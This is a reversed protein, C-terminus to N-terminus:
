ADALAEEFTATTKMGMGRAFGPAMAGVLYIASTHMEAVHGCSIMSFAHFPHYGFGFRYQDIYEKRTAFYEGYVELDTLSQHYDKQYLEYLDRYATFEEDHFYGNCLSSCIVVANDALIRKHRIINAAIAQLILIPNTGHGDGYHFAQPMGFMLVQYKRRAWAVYTRRDAVEWSAAQVREAAGAFVAIQRMRTDLVADCVFFPRKMRSEMHRGIADFKRRMTSHSSVPTFDAGHMVAPVHHSAISRWHTIGTACHKYGGSYGGYPNGLAHGILVPLDAEFVARNMIVPDGEPDSGLDVLNEPDESDHNVIRGIRSFRHYIDDGLIARLESPRMKRHLGNSCVLTINKEKVGAALCEDIILPISIKRHSTEQFGGKVRDPFVIAVTSHENVLRSVPEMGLPTRLAQETAARPDDLPPPDPVTEGPVFLDVDDPLGASMTGQGYELELTM